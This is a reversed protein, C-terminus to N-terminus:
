RRVEIKGVGVTIGDDILRLLYLGDPLALDLLVNGQYIFRAASGSWVLAGTMDYIRIACSLYQGTAGIIKIKGATPNPMIRIAEPQVPDIGAPCSITAPASSAMCDSDSLSMITIYYTGSDAVQIQYGDSGPVPASDYYWQYSVGGVPAISLECGNVHLQPVTLPSDCGAYATVYVLATDMAMCGHTDTVTLTYRTTDVPWVQPNSQQSSLGAPESRWAYMYIGSGGNAPPAGGLVVTDGVHIIHDTGADAHLPPVAGIYITAVATDPCGGAGSIAVSYSGPISVTVSQASDSLAGVPGIWKYVSGNPYASLTSISDACGLATDTASIYAQPHTGVSVAASATASCGDTSATLTYTTSGNPNATVTARATDSLGQSPSWRYSTAQGAATLTTGTGGTCITVAAPNVSIIPTQTVNVTVTATASCIGTTGTVIYMTTSSLGSVLPSAATDSSLGTAPSWRYSGAGSVHLVITSGAGSSCLSLQTGPSISLAPPTSVNVGITDTASCGNKYGTVSYTYHGATSVSASATAGSGGSLGPGSWLYASANGTATLSTSQGACVDSAAAAAHVSLDSASLSWGSSVATAGCGNTVTVVYTGAATVTHASATDGGSWLYTCDNCVNALSLHAASASCLLTDGRIVPVAPSVCPSYACISFDGAYSSGIGYSFIRVLYTSDAMPIFSVTEAQGAGHRDACGIQVPTGCSGSYIGVVMDFSATNTIPTATITVSDTTIPRISFWVDDDARGSQYLSTCTSAGYFSIGASATANVTSCTDPTCTQGVTLSLPNCVDDNNCLPTPNVVTLNNFDTATGNFVDLDVNGTIGSVAGYWDYQKFAWTTWNGINAPATAPSTGPAAIWLKCNNLSSSLYGAISPSTYIIPIRGTHRYVTDVWTQTWATLAASSFYSTLAQSHILCTGAPDELDLVPPLYGAATYAGATSLFYLAEAGAANDEPLAFHYAGVVLGAAPAGTIYSAFRSDTYCTGKTAKVFAFSKGAAAVQSWTISGQLASVDVGLISQAHGGSIAFWLLLANLLRKM